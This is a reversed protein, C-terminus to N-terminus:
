FSFTTRLTGVLGDENDSSQGSNILYILGPTISINDSVQFKYFAQVQIPLDNNVGTFGSQGPNGVYPAVGAFLGLLNGKKLLDAFSVGLGYTWIESSGVGDRIYDADIYSFYGNVSFSTGMKWAASVGYANVNAGVGKGAGNAWWTGAVPVAGGSAFLGSGFLGDAGVNKRYSNVYTLAVTFPSDAGFTVQGLAAYSGDFLGGGAAPINAAGGSGLNTNDALYGASIKFPGAGFNIGIGSGGGIQYIPNRSALPTLAGKGGDYDEQFGSATPAYDYQLGNRAPIYVNINKGIPFYYAIWDAVVSNGGTNGFNFQQTAEIYPLNANVVGERYRFLDANGAALRTVLLDKGTFSTNFNLRVRDQFVTANNIPQYFEDTVAFIVEGALKTTTSFQQKELTATRAELADVRGRLTALEAAFEEQLKQLIALDEKKVLDATAAAILESVRDMCANLGAAFEYRTMAQNGRYTRDPYGVICGYREVLSQLAQFAWDTPKVDTLQSVSTVQGIQSSSRGERAYRNVQDLDGASSTAPTAIADQPAAQAVLIPAKPTVVQRALTPTEAAPTAVEVTEVVAAEASQVPAPAEISSVESAQNVVLASASTLPEVSASQAKGAEVANAASSMALAVGLVAPSALLSKLLIRSM